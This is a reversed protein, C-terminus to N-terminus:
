ILLWTLISCLALPLMLADDTNILWEVHFDDYSPKMNSSLLWRFCLGCWRWWVNLLVNVKIRCRWLWITLSPPRQKSQWWVVDVHPAAAFHGGPLLKATLDLRENGTSLSFFWIWVVKAQKKTTLQLFQHRSSWIHHFLFGMSSRSYSMKLPWKFISTLVLTKEERGIIWINSHPRFM